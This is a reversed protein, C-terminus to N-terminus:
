RDKYEEKGKETERSEQVEEVRNVRYWDNMKM